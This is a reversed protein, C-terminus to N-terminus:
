LCAGEAYPHQGVALVYTYGKFNPYNYMSTIQLHPCVRTVVAMSAAATQAACEPVCTMQMRLAASVEAGYPM